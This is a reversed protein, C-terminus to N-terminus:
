PRKFFRKIWEFFCGALCSAPALRSGCFVCNLSESPTEKKCSSCVVTQPASVEEREWQKQLKPPPEEDKLEWDKPGEEDDFM